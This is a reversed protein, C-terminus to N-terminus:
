PSHSGVGTLCLYISYSVSPLVPLAEVVQGAVETVMAWPLAARATARLSAQRAGLLLGRDRLPTRLPGRAELQAGAQTSPGEHRALRAVLTGLCQADM